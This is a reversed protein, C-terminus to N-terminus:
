RADAPVTLGARDFFSWLSDDLKISLKIYAGGTYIDSVGSLDTPAWNYGASILVNETPVFGLEGGFGAFTTGQLADHFVTGNVGLRMRLEDGIEFDREIGAQGLLMFSEGIVGGADLSQYQGAQRATLRTYSDFAWSGGASWYATLSDVDDIRNQDLRLGAVALGDISEDEPRFAAGIRLHDRLQQQSQTDAWALRNEVAWSWDGLRQAWYQQGYATYGGDKLALEVGLGLRADEGLATRYGATLSTQRGQDTNGGFPLGLLENVDFPEFHELTAYVQADESGPLWGDVTWEGRMGAAIGTQSGSRLESFTVLDENLRFEVGATLSGTMADAASLDLFESGATAWESRVYLRVDETAQHSADILARLRSPDLTNVEVEGSVSFGPMSEPRWEGGLVISPVTVADSGDGPLRHLFRVGGTATLEPTVSWDALLEAGYRQDGTQAARDYLAAASLAVGTWGTWDASLLVEDRGSSIADGELFGEGVHRARVRVVVDDNVLEYFIRGAVGSTGDGTLSHAIEIEGTGAEGWDASVYAARVM